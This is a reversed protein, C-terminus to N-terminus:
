QPFFDGLGMNCPRDPLGASLAIGYRHSDTPARSEPWDLLLGHKCNMTVNQTTSTDGARFSASFELPMNQLGAICRKIRGLGNLLILMASITNRGRLWCM